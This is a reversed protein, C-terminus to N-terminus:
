ELQICDGRAGGEKNWSSSAAGLERSGGEDEKHQEKQQARNPNVIKHKGRKVQHCHCNRNRNRKRSWRGRKRKNRRKRDRRRTNSRRTHGRRTVTETGAGTGESAARGEGREVGGGKLLQRLLWYVKRGSEWLACRMPPPASRLVRCRSRESAREDVVQSVPSQWHASRMRTAVQRWRWTM